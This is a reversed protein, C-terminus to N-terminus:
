TWPQLKRHNPHDSPSASLTLRPGTLSRPRSLHLSDVDLSSPVSAEDIMFSVCKDGQWMGLPVEGKWGLINLVMESHEHNGMFWCLGRQAQPCRCKGDTTPNEDKDHRSIMTNLNGSARTKRWMASLRSTFRLVFAPVRPDESASSRSPEEVFGQGRVSIAEDRADGPGNSRTLDAVRGWFQNMVPTPSPGDVVADPSTLLCVQRFFTV